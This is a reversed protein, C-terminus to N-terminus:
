FQKPMGKHRCRTLNPETMTGQMIPHPFLAVRTDTAPTGRHNLPLIRCWPLHCHCTLLSSSMSPYMGMEFRGTTKSGHSLETLLQPLWTWHVIQHCRHASVDIGAALHMNDQLCGSGVMCTIQLRWGDETSARASMWPLLQLKGNIWGLSTKRAQHQTSMLGGVEWPVPLLSLQSPAPVDTRYKASVWVYPFALRQCSSSSDKATYSVYSDVNTQWKTHPSTQWLRVCWRTLSTRGGIRLRGRERSPM